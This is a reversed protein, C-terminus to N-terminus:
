RTQFEIAFSRGPLPYGGIEAYRENGLDYGRLTVVAHPALRLSAYADLRSYAVPQDFLPDGPVITGRPGETRMAIGFGALRQSPTGTYDLRLTAQLVPGRDPLRQGAYVDQAPNGDLDQAEYLNTLALSTVIGHMPRTQTQFTWGRIAAHGVNRPTYTADLVILNSGDTFFWGASTGGLIAADTISVDGVRTREPVLSPNSFGPFYLEEITPARFATAVNARLSIQPAIRAIGGISPSFAGGVSGDREGRLGAYLEAGDGILWSQQLYAAAQAYPHFILDGFGDDVRASGRSLDIGAVTRGHGTRVVDRLSAQVRGDTVLDAYPPTGPGLFANPCNPDVPTDCTFFIGLSSAALDLSLTREGRTRELALHLDRALDNERATPTLAAPYTYTENGPVGLHRDGVYAFLHADVAGIRRALVAHAATMGLDANVRSTGDPLPYDNTATTREVSVFPTQIRLSHEGFSGDRLDAVPRHLPSTIIDIIGGISGSGYLTSGGGEVVEIRDVGATSYDDLDIGNIQAGAVPVGDLMVLVQESSSGRIGYLTGAGPAYGAVFVGPLDAIAQAVTRYGRALMEDHTVVYVTRASRSLPERTRDSSVVHAVVPPPTATAHPAPIAGGALAHSPFAAFAFSFSAAAGLAQLRFSSSV